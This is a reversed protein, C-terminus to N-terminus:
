QHLLSSLNSFVMRFIILVHEGQESSLVVHQLKILLKAEEVM